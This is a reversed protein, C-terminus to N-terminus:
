GLLSNFSVTLKGPFEGFYSQSDAILLYFYPQFLNDVSVGVGSNVLYVWVQKNQYFSQRFKWELPEIDPIGGLNRLIMEIDESSFKDGLVLLPCLDFSTIVINFLGYKGMENFYDNAQKRIKKENKLIHNRAKVDTLIDVIKQEEEESIMNATELPIKSSVISNYILNIKQKISKHLLYTETQMAILADGTYKKFELDSPKTKGLNELSKFELTLIKKDINKAFEMLASILGANLEFSSTADLAEHDRYTDESFDFFRQYLVIGEPLNKIKKHYYPFGTSTLISISYITM